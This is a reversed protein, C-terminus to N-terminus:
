IFKLLWSCIVVGFIDLLEAWGRFLGCHSLAIPVACVDHVLEVVQVSDMSTRM